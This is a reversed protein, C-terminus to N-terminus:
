EVTAPRISTYTTFLIFHAHLFILFIYILFFQLLYKYIIGLQVSILSTFAVFSSEILYPAFIFGNGLSEEQGPWSCM